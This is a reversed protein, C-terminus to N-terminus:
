INKTIAEKIKEINVVLGVLIPKNDIVLTPTSIVGMEIITKMDTIYEVDDKIGLENVAQKTLEYLKKCNACGSGLVQITM